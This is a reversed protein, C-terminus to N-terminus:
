RTTYRECYHKASEIRAPDERLLGIATNCDKCLLDRVKGTTHCHDVALKQTLDDAHTHCIACRHGQAKLKATYEELTLGFNTKINREYSSEKM